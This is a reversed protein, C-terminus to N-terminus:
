IAEFSSHHHGGFIHVDPTEPQGKYRDILVHVFM